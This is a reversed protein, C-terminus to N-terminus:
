FFLVSHMGILKRKSAMDVMYQLLCILDAVTLRMLFPPQFDSPAVKIDWIGSNVAVKTTFSLKLSLPSGLPCNNPSIDVAHLQLKDEENEM